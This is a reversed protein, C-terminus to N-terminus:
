VLKYFKVENSNIKERYGVIVSCIRGYVKYVDQFESIIKVNERVSIVEKYKGIFHNVSDRLCYCLYRYLQINSFANAIYRDGSYINIESCVKWLPEESCYNDYLVEKVEEVINEVEGLDGLVNMDRQKQRISGDLSKMKESEFTDNGDPRKWIGVDQMLKSIVAIRHIDSDNKPIRSM